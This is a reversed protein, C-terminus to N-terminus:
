RNKKQTFWQEITDITIGVFDTVVVDAGNSKLDEENNERAVGVVLGFRGNVGAQVGSVADEVVIARAPMTGINEAARVFIDGEPKGKLGLEASVVGDVRTEFLSELGAAQLIYQCNKSSSAVGVRIGKAKLERILVVTSQYIEVGKEKL